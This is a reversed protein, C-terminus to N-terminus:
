IIYWEDVGNSQIQFHDHTRKLAIQSVGDIKDGPQAIVVFSPNTSGKSIIYTRGGIGLAAPLTVSNYTNSIVEISYDNNTMLYNTGADTLQRFNTNIGANIILNNYTNPDDKGLVITGDSLVRFQKNTTGTPVIEFENYVSIINGAGTPIVYRGLNTKDDILFGM